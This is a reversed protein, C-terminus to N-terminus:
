KAAPAVPAPALAHSVANAAAILALAIAMVTPSLGTLAGSAQLSAGLAAITNLVAAIKDFTITM